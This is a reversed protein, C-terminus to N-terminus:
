KDGGLPKGAKTFTGDQEFQAIQEPTFQTYKNLIEMRHQGVQPPAVRTEKEEITSMKIPNGPVIVDGAYPDQCKVFMNRAILQKDKVVMSMDNVPACPVGVADLKDLWNQMNDTEVVEQIEKGIEDLHQSREWNTVFRPDTVLQPKGIVDCLRAFLNDNGAAIAFWHDKAKFAQFPTITPHRHGLPKPSEGTVEYRSLM